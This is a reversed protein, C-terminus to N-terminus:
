GGIDIMNHMETMQEPQEFCHAAPKQRIAEEMARMLRNQRVEWDEQGALCSEGEKGQGHRLVAKLDVGDEFCLCTKLYGRATLRIRNCRDCFKGHIASIFGISGQFGPIRYYVAPGFGYVQSDRQIDPYKKRMEDLLDQQSLPKFNKGYGIPMMEIFRVHVPYERALEMVPKWWPERICGEEAKEWKARWLDWDISVANIKVPIKRELAAELGSIVQTLGDTGTIAQYCAQDMTDLSINIGDIGAEALSDLFSNLLVGNTTLTVKRIGPVSKLMGVLKGCGLRTLPEGGTVKIHRIGLKAAAFAVERIEEYTLIDEHRVSEIGYPMCYRCRLNCRDTISIRLYDITRGFSDKM